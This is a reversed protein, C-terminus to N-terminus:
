NLLGLKRGGMVIRFVGGTRGHGLRSRPLFFVNMNCSERSGLGVKLPRYIGGFFKRPVRALVNINSKAGKRTSGKTERRLRRMVDLTKTIADRAGGNGVGIVTNVNYGSRRFDRHCLNHGRDRVRGEVATVERRRLEFGM